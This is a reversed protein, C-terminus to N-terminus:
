FTLDYADADDIDRVVFKIGITSLESKILNLDNPDDYHLSMEAEGDAMQVLKETGVIEAYQDYGPNNIPSFLIQFGYTTDTLVIAKVENSNFTTM